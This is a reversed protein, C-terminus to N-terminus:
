REGEQETAAERVAQERSSAVSFSGLAGTAEFIRKVAPSTGFELVVRRGRGEAAERAKMFTRLIALDIFLAETVDIVVNRGQELQTGIADRVQPV